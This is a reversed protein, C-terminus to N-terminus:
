INGGQRCSLYPHLSVSLTDPLTNSMSINWIFMVNDKFKFGSRQIVGNKVRWLLAGCSLCFYMQLPFRLQAQLSQLQRNILKHMCPHVWCHDQGLIFWHWKSSQSNPAAGRALPHLLAPSGFPFPHSTLPERHRGRSTRHQHLRAQEGEQRAWQQADSLTTPHDTLEKSVAMWTSGCSM